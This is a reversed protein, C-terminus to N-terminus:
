DKTKPEQVEYMSRIQKFDQLSQLGMRNSITKKKMSSTIFIGPIALPKKEKEAETPLPPTTGSEAGKSQEITVEPKEAKGNEPTSDVKPKKQQTQTWTLKNSALPGYM